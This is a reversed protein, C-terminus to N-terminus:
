DRAVPSRPPRCDAIPRRTTACSSAQARAILERNAVKLPGLFRAKRTELVIESGTQSVLRTQQRSRAALRFTRRVFGGPSFEVAQGNPVFAPDADAFALAISVHERGDPAALRSHADTSPRVQRVFSLPRSRVAVFSTEIWAFDGGFRDNRLGCNVVEIRRLFTRGSPQSRRHGSVANEDDFVFV